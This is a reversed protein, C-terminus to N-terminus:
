SSFVQWMVTWASIIQILLFFFFLDLVCYIFTKIVHIFLALVLTIFIANVERMKFLIALLHLIVCIFGVGLANFVLTM